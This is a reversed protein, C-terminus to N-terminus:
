QGVTMVSQFALIGYRGLFSLFGIKEADESAYFWPTHPLVVHRSM